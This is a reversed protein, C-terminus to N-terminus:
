SQASPKSLANKLRKLFTANCALCQSAKYLQKVISQSLNIEENIDLSITAEVKGRPSVVLRLADDDCLVRGRLPRPRRSPDPMTRTLSCLADYLDAVPDATDASTVLHAIISRREGQTEYLKSRGHTRVSHQVPEGTGQPVFDFSRDTHFTATGRVKVPRATAAPDTPNKLTDM